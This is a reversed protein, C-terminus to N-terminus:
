KGANQFAALLRPDANLGLMAVSKASKSAAKRATSDLIRKRLRLNQPTVEIIEDDRVYAILEELTMRRPPSLRTKDEKMVSRVNSLAKTKVPNLELDESRSNEGIVMGPYTKTGPEVFLVGRSELSELAYATCVGEEMSILAGKDNREIAGKFQTYSHFIQNMVGQGRTDNMFESRYGLLGRTPIHFLLRVRGNPLSIFEKMDGGRKSVKEIVTGSLPEDVDFTVEEVPEMLKNTEPDVTFVVQPPSVALEYGERRITEIIIGLQLEGRARVEVADKSAADGIRISVNNEAERILRQRLANSTLSTGERGALPSDNVQFTMSLTPPDIPISPIVSNLSPACLTSNVTAQSFGAISVIDGAFAENVVYRNMGRRRLVKLIKVTEIEKGEEDLAKVQDGPRVKGQVIRGILCKGFYHDSEIQTVLMQFPAEVDATPHPVSEIVQEFLPTMDQGVEPKKSAWGARGSAYIVQYDLQEDTADLNVFLDFIENEVEGLRASPRDVKNIVVIPKLGRALAKKLVFKTQAMPGETADVVLCVGDVMSMIREVEGGFDAHGPTDVINIHYDEGSSPHKWIISTCKALITIGRERELQNSDMLRVEGPNIRTGVTKLMSDVLTTKGHDVHAIIAINRMRELPVHQSDVEPGESGDTAFGRRLELNKHEVCTETLPMSAAATGLATRRASRAATSIGRALRPAVVAGQASARAACLAPLVRASVSTNRQVAYATLASVARSSLKRFMDIDIHRIPHRIIDPFKM